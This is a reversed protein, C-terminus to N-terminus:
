GESQHVIFKARQYLEDFTIIEPSHTNQRFLEFSRFQEQNVGHEGVFADLNGIVLYAKPSYNFAEDGTPYGNSDSIALKGQISDMASAVTGQVQSVAGALESSPPWCGSRYPTKGLLPTKHTKIEVFCLNSIAGRSRM